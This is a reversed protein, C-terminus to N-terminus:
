NFGYNLIIAEGTGVSLDTKGLLVEQRNVRSIAKCSYVGADSKQVNFILSDYTKVTSLTIDYGTDGLTVKYNPFDEKNYCTWMNKHNDEVRGTEGTKFWQVDYPEGNTIFDDLDAVNPNRNCQLLYM